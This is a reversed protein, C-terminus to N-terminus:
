YVLMNHMSRNGLSYIYIDHNIIGSAHDLFFSITKNVPRNYSPIAIPMCAKRLFKYANEYLYTNTMNDM